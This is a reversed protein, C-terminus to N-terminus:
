MITLPVVCLLQLTPCTSNRKKRVKCQPDAKNKQLFLIGYGVMVAFNTFLCMCEKSSFFPDHFVEALFLFHVCPIKYQLKCDSELVVSCVPLDLTRNGITDNSNKMSMIM